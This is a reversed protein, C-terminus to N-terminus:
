GKPFYVRKGDVLRWTMGKRKAAGKLCNELRNQIAKETWVKNKYNEIAQASRKAGKKSTPGRRDIGLQHAKRHEPDKFHHNEKMWQSHTKAFESRLQEYIVGTIKLRDQYQNAKNAMTWAAYVMKQKYEEPVMKTLLHHCTFHEKATLDVLNEKRNSGGM